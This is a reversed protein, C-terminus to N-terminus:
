RRAYALRVCATGLGVCVAYGLVLAVGCGVMFATGLHKVVLVVAGLLVNLVNWIASLGSFTQAVEQSAATFGAARTLQWCAVCLAGCSGLLLVLTCVRLAAPWMQWPQRYWPLAHRWAITELVHPLLRSPAVLDPLAKLACDIKAELNKEYEPNM